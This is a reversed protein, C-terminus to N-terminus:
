VSIIDITELTLVRYDEDGSIVISDEESIEVSCNWHENLGFAGNEINKRVWNAISDMMSNDPFLFLTPENDVLLNRM